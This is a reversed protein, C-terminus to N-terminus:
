ETAKRGNRSLLAGFTTRDNIPTSPRGMRMGFCLSYPWKHGIKKTWGRAENGTPITVPFPLVVIVGKEKKRGILRFVHQPQIRFMKSSGARCGLWPFDVRVFVYIIPNNSLLTTGKGRSLGYSLTLTCSSSFGPTYHSVKDLRQIRLDRYLRGANYGKALLDAEPIKKLKNYSSASYSYDIRTSMISPLEPNSATIMGSSTFGISDARTIMDWAILPLSTRRDM